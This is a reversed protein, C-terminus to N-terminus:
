QSGSNPLSSAVQWAILTSSDSLMSMSMRSSCTCSSSSTRAGIREITYTSVVRGGRVPPGRSRVDRQASSCTGCTPRGHARDLPCPFDRADAETRPRTCGRDSGRAPNRSGWPPLETHNELRPNCPCAHTCPGGRQVARRTQTFYQTSSRHTIKILFIERRNGGDGEIYQSASGQARARTAPPLRCATRRPAHPSSEISYTRTDGTRRPVACRVTAYIHTRHENLSVCM